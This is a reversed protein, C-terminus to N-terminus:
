SARVRLLVPGGHQERVQDGYALDISSEAALGNLVPCPGSSRLQLGDRAREVVFPGVPFPGLPALLVMEPLEIRLGQQHATIRCPVQGALRLELGQGVPLTTELRSGALYTGNRSQLDTVTPGHQPDREILLHKPSLAPSPVAVSAEDSSRGVILREGIAVFLRPDGEDIPLLSGPVLRAQLTRAFAAMEDDTPHRALWEHAQELARRRQGISSLDQLTQWLHQRQRQELRAAHDSALAQELEDIAGCQALLRAQNEVDGAYGFAEAAEALLGPQELETGLFHLESPMTVVLRQRALDLSLQAKRRRAEVACPANPDTSAALQLLALRQVPDTESQAHALMVRAADHLLGASRYLEYAHQLQGQAELRAARSQAHARALQDSLRRLLSM